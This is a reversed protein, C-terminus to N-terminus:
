PKRSAPLFTARVQSDVILTRTRNNFEMGTGTLVDSGIRVVVPLDSRAIDDEPLLRAQETEITMRPEKGDAQRDLLVGGTLLIDSGGTGSRGTRSRVSVTPRNADLSVLVPQELVTSDDGRFYELREATLLFAPTGDKRTRNVMVAEAFSEPQDGLGASPSVGPAQDAIRALYFSGAALATAIAITLLASLRDERRSAM